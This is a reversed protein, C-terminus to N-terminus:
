LFISQERIRSEQHEPFSRVDKAIHRCEANVIDLNQTQCDLLCLYSIRVANRFLVIDPLCNLYDETTEACKNICWDMDLVIAQGSMVFALVLNEAFGEGIHYHVAIVKIRQAGAYADIGVM